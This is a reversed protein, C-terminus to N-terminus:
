GGKQDGGVDKSTYVVLVTQLEVLPYDGKVTTKFKMESFDLAREQKTLSSVFEMINHFPGEISFKVATEGYKPFESSREEPSMKNVILSHDEALKSVRGQLVNIDMGEPSFYTQFDKMNASITQIEEEFRVKDDLAKRVRKLAESNKQQSQKQQVIQVDISTGADYLLLWYFFVLAIGVLFCKQLDLKNFEEMLDM